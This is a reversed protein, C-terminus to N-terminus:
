TTFFPQFIKDLVRQPIGSGNDKVRVEVKDGISKTSIIVTPEYGAVGSKKKENVVYFANTILNLVVRGIDQPIVNVKPLGEEYTTKMVANFSKDKARLGHYALRLYEDTLENIDTPEKQGSSSRSHQLMGKVISDARRGHHSIKEENNDIDDAITRAESFDGKEIAAKMEGILERNVESFNNVFNLPNQIEHAIGATLEGLSAMKERQILQTQAEKLEKYAAEIKTKAKQKQRNNRLVLLTIIAFTAIGGLLIYTRVRGRYIVKENELEQLRYQDSLFQHQINKLDKIEKKSISDKELFALELYKYASDTNHNLKYSMYLDSYINPNVIRTSQNLSLNKRAYYLSSDKVNEEIFLKVLSSYCNSLTSNNNQLLAAQIAKHFFQLALSKNKKSIYIQGINYFVSALYKRQGTQSFIQLAEKELQLASDLKNLKQYLFGVNMNVFGLMESDAIQLAIKKVEKYHFLQKELNGSTYMLHGFDLHINMLVYKSFVNPTLTENNIGRYWALKKNKPNEAIKFASLFLQYSETLNNLRYQIYGESDMALAENLKKNNKQAILKSKRTYYLASDWNKTSYYYGLDFYKYFSVSDDTGLKRKEGDISSKQATASFTILLVAGINLFVKM